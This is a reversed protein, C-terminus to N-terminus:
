LSDRFGLDHAEKVNEISAETEPSRLIHVSPGFPLEKSQSSM